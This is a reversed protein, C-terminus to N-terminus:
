FYLRWADLLPLCLGACIQPRLNEMLLKSENQPSSITLLYYMIEDCLQDVGRNFDSTIRMKRLSQITFSRSVNCQAEFTFFFM